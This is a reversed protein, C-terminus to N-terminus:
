ASGDELDVGIAANALQLAPCPQGAGCISCLRASAEAAEAALKECVTCGPACGVPDDTM